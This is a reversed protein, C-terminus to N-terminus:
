RTLDGLVLAARHLPEQANGIADARARNELYLAYSVHRGLERELRMVDRRIEDLTRSPPIMVGRQTRAQM